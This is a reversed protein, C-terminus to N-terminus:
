LSPIRSYLAVCKGHCRPLMCLFHPRMCLFRPRGTHAGQIYGQSYEAHCCAYPALTPLMCPACALGTDCRKNALWSCYHQECGNQEHELVVRISECKGAHGCDFKAFTVSGPWSKALWSMNSAKTSSSLLCRHEPREPHQENKVHGSSGHTAGTCTVCTM